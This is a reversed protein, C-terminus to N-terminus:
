CAGSFEPSLNLLSTSCCFSSLLHFFSCLFPEYIHPSYFCSSSSSSSLLEPIDIIKFFNILNLLWCFCSQTDKSDHSVLDPAAAHWLFIHLAVVFYATARTKFSEVATAPSASSRQHGSIQLLNTQTSASSCASLYRRRLIQM